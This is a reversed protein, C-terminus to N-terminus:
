IEQNHEQELHKDISMNNVMEIRKSIDTESIQPQINHNMLEKRADPTDFQALVNINQSPQDNKFLSRAKALMELARLRHETKEKGYAIDGISKLIFDPTYSAVIREIEKQFEETQLLKSSNVQATKDNADPYVVKYADTPKFGNRVIEQALRKHKLKALNAIRRKSTTGKPSETEAVM